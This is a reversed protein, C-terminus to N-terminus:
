RVEPMMNEFLERKLFLMGLIFEKFESADIKGPLIAATKFIFSELQSRIIKGTTL